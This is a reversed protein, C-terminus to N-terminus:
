VKRYLHVGNGRDRRREFEDVGCLMVVENIGAKSERQRCAPRCIKHPPRGFEEPPDM